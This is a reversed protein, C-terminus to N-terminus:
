IETSHDQAGSLFFDFLVRINPRITTCLYAKKATNSCQDAWRRFHRPCIKATFIFLYFTFLRIYFTYVICNKQLIETM